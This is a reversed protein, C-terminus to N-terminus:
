RSFPHNDEEDEEESISHVPPRRGKPPKVNAQDLVVPLGTRPDLTIKPVPKNDRARILRPHNELNSYTAKAYTLLVHYYVRAQFSASSLRVIGDIRRIRRKLRCSFRRKTAVMKM